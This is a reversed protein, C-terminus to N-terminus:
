GRAIDEKRVITTTQTAEDYVIVADGKKVQRMVGNIKQELTAEVLGYDTGDRTVVEEIVGQLAAPSLNQYPIILM